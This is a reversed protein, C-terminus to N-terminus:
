SSAFGLSSSPSVAPAAAVFSSLIFNSQNPFPPFNVPTIQASKEGLPRERVRFAFCFQQDRLCKGTEQSLSGDIMM